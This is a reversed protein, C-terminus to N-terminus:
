QSQEPNTAAKGLSMLGVRFAAQGQPVVLYSGNIGDHVIGVRAKLQETVEANAFKTM